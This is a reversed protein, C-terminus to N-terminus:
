RYTREIREIMKRISNAHAVWVNANRADQWNTALHDAKGYCIGEIHELVTTLGYKDVYKEITDDNAEIM